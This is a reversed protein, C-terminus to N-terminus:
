YNRGTWHCLKVASHGFIKYQQRKFMALLEKSFYEEPDHM